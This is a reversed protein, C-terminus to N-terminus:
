AIDVVLKGSASGNAIIEYAKDISQLGFRHPDLKPLLKGSEVLRTAERLITGQHPRGEGTALSLMPSIASYNASKASLAFLSHIGGGAASIVHGFYKVALFASELSAGGVTDYVVDFGYGKTYHAVYQEVTYNQLDIPTAGLADILKCKGGIETAFVHGGLAMALQVALYAIDETGNQILVVHGPKLKARNVLGEWAVIFAMPMAAAERMSLNAPKLALLCADVAVYEALSGQLSSGGSAMGYVEDGPKFSSVGPGSSVVVGSFDNGLIAPLVRRSFGVDGGRIGLDQSNVGSALIKVLVQGLSPVPRAVTAYRFPEFYNELIAAKMSKLLKM